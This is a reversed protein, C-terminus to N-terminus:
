SGGQGMYDDKQRCTMHRSAIVDSIALPIMNRPNQQVGSERPFPVGVYRGIRSKALHDFVGMGYAGSGCLRSDVQESQCISVLQQHADARVHDM